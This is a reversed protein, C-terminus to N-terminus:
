EGPNVFPYDPGSRWTLTNMNMLETKISCSKDWYCGTVLAQGMYNAMATYDHYYTSSGASHFNKGNFSFRLILVQTM